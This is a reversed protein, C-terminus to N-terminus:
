RGPETTNSACSAVCTAVSRDSVGGAWGDLNLAVVDRVIWGLAALFFRAGGSASIVLTARRGAQRSAMEAGRAAGPSVYAFDHSGPRYTASANEGRV